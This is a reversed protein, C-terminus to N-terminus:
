GTKPADTRGLELRRVLDNSILEDNKRGHSHMAKETNADCGRSSRIAVKIDGGSGISGYRV